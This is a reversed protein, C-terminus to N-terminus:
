SSGQLRMRAGRRLIGRLLSAILLCVIVAVLVILWPFEELLLGVRMPAPIWGVLYSEGGMQYSFWNGGRLEAVTRGIEGADSGRSLRELLGAVATRDRLAVVVVSRRSGRPWEAGEILAEPMGGATDIGTAEPAGRKWWATRGFFGSPERVHLGTEDLGVPLASVLTHLAPQDEVTGLVLYDKTGEQTLGEPGTVAVHLAPYGTHAGFRAMMGLFLEMEEPTPEAPLVVATEALDALRTFPYGAAAFLELNPLATWHHIGQVDLYSSKLITGAFNSRGDATCAAGKPRRFAWRLAVTNWFPRLMGVPVAVVAEGVTATRDSRPLAVSSVYQGNVLVELASEDGLPVGNYRYRVHLPLTKLAEGYLPGKGGAYFLDPPLQLTVSAPEAGDSELNVSRTAVGFDDLRGADTSLWRPADDPLRRSPMQVDTLTMQKGQLRSRETAIVTAAKVLDDGSSGTLVLVKGFADAPNTRIAVTPGSVLGVGLSEPVVGSEAIVIVNGAPIRGITVPFHVPRDGAVTAFWSALIGAAQMGKVSPTGLFVVPVGPLTSVGAQYFPMPLLGLQDDLAITTGSLELASDAGVRSWIMANVPAGCAVAASGVLEFTLTNSRGLLEAPLVVTSEVVGGPSVTVDVPAHGSLASGGAVSPRAKGAASLPANVPVAAVTTGNLSVKLQTGAPLLGPSFQYRLRMAATKVLLGQSLAFPVVRRTQAGGLTITEGVGLDALSMTKHFDGAAPSPSVHRVQLNVKAPAPVVASGLEVPAEAPDDQAQAGAASREGGLMLMALAIMPVVSTVWPRRPRDHETPAASGGFFAQRVGRAALRLIRLFSRVPRDPERTESWGLWRDARAYLIMTLAELEPLTLRDFKARLVRGELAVVVAPLVATGNPVPFVFQVPDGARAKVDYEMRTRVGGSSLDATIGRVKSGDALVVESPVSTEVRVSRRRQVSEWAVAAAVGLLVVNFGTWAANIAVTGVHGPDYLTAPWNVFQAWAPVQLTPFHWIRAAACFLGFWNCLLLLLTPRAIRADFYEEDVTEGKATVNFRGSRPSILALLTPVLLYPALVTEYIETWFSHRHSGQMRSRAVSSLVLHPAAYALIAGWYGPINMYGLILYMLPATLFILRPLAYLFHSMSNFYCLRQAFRLGPGLLPSEIRLIQIMGRAWRIRQRVHGSLRETALGAAQPINIYASNWGLRQMRMSTHADETVTETAMGGVEDLARRRLVACSGCFYTANWFDNGDQVVGYFLEDEAPVDGHQGLNRGFPDASYFHHPTQLIGLEADRLFWGMTVQLFSRTPVHDADFVVVFPSKTRELAANLNGAKAAWTDSRTMYGVGAEEAFERFEERQGDDLIFVNLKDAPWDMNLAALATFRVVELPENLTPIMVDVAPWDFTEEPLPVPMRRLPWVMQMYGLVLVVFAYCEAALLLAIFLTNASLWRAGPERLTGVTTSLRWFAYRFTSYVSLLMLTLTVLYSSSSRDLWIAVVVTLAAVLAQQPWPLGMVGTLGLFLLGALLVCFRM